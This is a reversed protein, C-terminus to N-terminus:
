TQDFFFSFPFYLVFFSVYLLFPEPEANARFCVSCCIVACPTIVSLKRLSLLSFYRCTPYLPFCCSLVCILLMTVHCKIVKFHFYQMLTFIHWSSPHPAAQTTANFKCKMYRWLADASGNQWGSESTKEKELFILQLLCSCSCTHAKPAKLAGM